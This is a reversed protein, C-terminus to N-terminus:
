EWACSKPKPFGAIKAVKGRLDEAFLRYFLHNIDVGIERATQYISLSVCEHVRSMFDIVIWHRETLEDIGERAALERAITPSWAGSRSLHRDKGLAFTKCM